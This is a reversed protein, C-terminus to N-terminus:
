LNNAILQAKARFKEPSVADAFIRILKRGPNKAAWVRTISEMDPDSEDKVAYLSSEGMIKHRIATEGCLINPLTYVFIAPSPFFNDPQLTSTYKLDTELCGTATFAIIDINENPESSAPLDLKEVALLASKCVSDMKHFKPYPSKFVKKYLENVNRNDASDRIEAEAVVKYAFSYGKPNGLRTDIDAIREFAVGANSGGFGSMIKWFSRPNEVRRPEPSLNLHHSTGQSSFGSTPLITEQELAKLTLVSELIGAAGLTHGFTGKLSSVPIDTLEARSIAISEMEDNYLTATGHTSIVDPLCSGESQLDSLVRLSGEATRSPGSIHNADNHNSVGTIIWKGAISQRDLIESPAIVMAASAEGLNLGKREADYPRCREESLAKFSQFGSVIFASLIDAGVILLPYTEEGSTILDAALGIASVGSVCANSVILPNKTLGLIDALSQASEYLTIAKDPLADVEGKTSSLVLRFDAPELKGGDILKASDIAEFMAKKGSIAAVQLFFSPLKCDPFLTAFENEINERNFISLFAEEPLGFPSAYSTLATRQSVIGEVNGAVSVSLPTTASTSLIVPASIKAEM